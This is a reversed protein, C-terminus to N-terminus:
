GWIMIMDTPTKPTLGLGLGFVILTLLIAFILPDPLFRHVVNTFFNSTSRIVSM